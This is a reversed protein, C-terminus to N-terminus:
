GFLQFSVSMLTILLYRHCFVCRWATAPVLFDVGIELTLEDVLILADLAEESRYTVMM